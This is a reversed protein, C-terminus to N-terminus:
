QGEPIQVDQAVFLTLEVRDSGPLERYRAPGGVGRVQSSRLPVNMNATRLMVRELSVSRADGSAITPNVQAVQGSAVDGTRALVKGRAILDQALVFTVTQGPAAEKGGFGDVAILTVPSGERLVTTGAAPDNQPRNTTLKKLLFEEALNVAVLGAFHFMLSRGLLTYQTRSGPYYTQSIEAAAITGIVGAYPPQWERNDGMTRFASTFAYWARQAKSGRGRYFYRPDQRLITEALVSTIMINTAATGYAAGFRKAYGKTGQGFEPYSNMQQEIGASTGVAALTFPDVLMRLGLHFKQRSSLSAPDGEYSVYFNPIVTLVRQKLQVNLQEAAVEEPPLGVTIKTIEPAVQLVAVLAKAEPMVLAPVNQVTWDAMGNASIKVAYDGPPLSLIKFSGEVDTVTTVRHGDAGEVVVVAGWIPASSADTVSGQISGTTQAMAVLGVCCLLIFASTTHNLFAHISWSRSRILLNSGNCRKGIRTNTGHKGTIPPIRDCNKSPLWNLTFVVSM